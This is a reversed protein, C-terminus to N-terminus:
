GKVLDPNESLRGVKENPIYPNINQPIFYYIWALLTSILVARSFSEKRITNSVFPMFLYAGIIAPMYWLQVGSPPNLFAMQLLLSVINFDKQGLIVRWFYYIIVWVETTILLGLLNNKYFKKTRGEDYERDLLLFGSILLFLPVGLRGLTHFFIYTFMTYWKVSQIFVPDVPYTMESAHTVVVLICAIARILDIFGIRQGTTDQITSKMVRKGIM